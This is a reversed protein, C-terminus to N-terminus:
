RIEKLFEQALFAMQTPKEFFPRWVVAIDSDNFIAQSVERFNEGGAVSVAIDYTTKILQIHHFPIEKEKNEAEDVGRHVVVVTPLQKLRGLVEFPFEINMMDVMSDIGSEQCAAIFMDITEIPALGLCTAASAGARAAIKVEAQGRDMCKLDAVIYGPKGLKASWWARLAAVGKEGYRKIFPTGAELLIRESAPLDVVMKEVEHWSRNLAIQLYKQKPSLM